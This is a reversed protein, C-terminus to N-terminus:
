QPAHAVMEVPAVYRREVVARVQRGMMDLLVAVRDESSLTVRATHGDMAGHTIRVAAGVTLPPLREPVSWEEIIGSASAMALMRNVSADPLWAPSLRDGIQGIVALVGRARRLHHWDNVPILCLLYGPWCPMIARIAPRNRQPILVRITPAFTQADIRSGDYRRLDRISQLALALDGPNHSVAVWRLDLAPLSGCRTALSGSATDDDRQM